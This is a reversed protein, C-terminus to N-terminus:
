ATVGKRRPHRPKWDREVRIEAARIEEDPHRELQALTLGWVIRRVKFGQTRLRRGIAWAQYNSATIM